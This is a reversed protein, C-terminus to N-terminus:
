LLPNMMTVMFTPKNCFSSDRRGWATSGEALPHHIQLGESFAPQDTKFKGVELVILLPASNKIVYGTGPIRNCCCSSICYYIEVPKIQSPSWWKTVNVKSPLITTHEKLYSALDTSAILKCSM